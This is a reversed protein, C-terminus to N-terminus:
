QLFKGCRNGKTIKKKCQTNITTVRATIRKNEPKKKIREVELWNLVWESFNPFCDWEKKDQWTLVV